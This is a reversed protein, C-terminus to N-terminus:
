TRRTPKKRNKAPTEKVKETSWGAKKMYDVNTEATLVESVEGGIAKYMKVNKPM